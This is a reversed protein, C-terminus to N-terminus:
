EWKVPSFVSVSLNIIQGLDLPPASIQIRLLRSPFVLNKGSCFDVCFQSAVEQPGCFIVYLIDTNFQLINYDLLILKTM